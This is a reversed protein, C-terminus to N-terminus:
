AALFEEWLKGRKATQEPGLYAEFEVKKLAEPDYKLVPNNVISKKLYPEADPMVYSSGTANIFSAYNKPELHFNMLAWVAPIHDSDKLATWGEIYAPVGEEPQVWVINKNQQQALAIDYDYDVAMYATGQVLAKSYDTDIIAKVNPKLELLAKQMEELQQEDKTNISHGLYKLGMGQIDSDYKILTTKGKYKAALDWLEQWTTPRESILDKRYAYGVKGYDTPIGWTYFDRFPKGVREVNPVRAADFPALLGALRSQESVNPGSLTLDYAGKNQAIQAIQQAQGSLGSATNKVTAQPYKKHFDKFENPGYWDPYGLLVLSGTVQDAPTPGGATTSASTATGTASDSSDGCAALFAPLSSVALLGGTGRMLAQRRTLRGPM